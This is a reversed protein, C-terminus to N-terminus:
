EIRGKRARIGMMENSDEWGGRDRKVEKMSMEKGKCDKGTM